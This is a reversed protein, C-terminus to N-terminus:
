NPALKFACFPSSNLDPKEAKAKITITYTGLTVLPSM